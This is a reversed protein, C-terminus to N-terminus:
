DFTIKKGAFSAISGSNKSKVSSGGGGRGSDRAGYGRGGGGGRGGRGGRGGGRGGGGFSPRDKRDNAFDVRIPRGCVNTGAMAVAKDTAESEYFEVHGFGKFDGTERDTAFRVSSIEGCEAFAQRLSDEDIEWALNGM